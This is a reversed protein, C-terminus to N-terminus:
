YCLRYRASARNRSCTCGSNSDSNAAIESSNSMKVPESDEPSFIRDLEMFSVNAANSSFTCLLERSDGASQGFHVVGDLLNTIAVQKPFKGRLM